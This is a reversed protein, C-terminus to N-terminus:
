TILDSVKRNVEIDFFENMTLQPSVILQLIAIQIAHM